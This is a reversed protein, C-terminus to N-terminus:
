ACTLEARGHAACPPVNVCMAACALMYRCTLPVRRRMSAHGRPGRGRMAASAGASMPAVDRCTPSVHACVAVRNRLKRLGMGTLIIRCLM